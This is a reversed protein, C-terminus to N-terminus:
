TQHLVLMLLRDRKDSDVECIEDVAQPQPLQPVKGKMSSEDLGAFSVGFTDKLWLVDKSLLDVTMAIEPRLKPRSYLGASREVHCIIDLLEATDITHVDARTSHNHNRYSQLISMAEASVTENTSGAMCVLIDQLCDPILRAALDLAIDNGYLESRVFPIVHLKDAIQNYYPEITARYRISRLSKVKHSARLQQQVSSLYYESPRRVYIVVELIEALPGLLRELNNIEEASFSRYFAEGSLVLTHPNYREIQALIRGWYKKFDSDLAGQKTAYVRKYGRPLRSFPVVGAVAFNQHGETTIPYLVGRRLLRSHARRLTQQLATSGAKPMGAHLIIKM